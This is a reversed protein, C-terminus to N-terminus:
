NRAAEIASERDAYLHFRRVLGDRFQFLWFIKMEVPVGSGAGVARQDIEVVLHEADVEESGVIEASVAQWAENWNRIMELYGDHGLYTGTNMLGPAVFCEIDDAFIALVPGAEGRNFAAVGERLLSLRQDESM